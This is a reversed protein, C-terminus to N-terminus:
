NHMTLNLLFGCVVFFVMMWSSYYAFDGVCIDHLGLPDQAFEKKINLEPKKFWFILIFLYYIGFMIGFVIPYLTWRLILDFAKIM